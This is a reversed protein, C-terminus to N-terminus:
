GSGVGGVAGCWLGVCGWWRLVWVLPCVWVLLRLVLWVWVLTLVLM